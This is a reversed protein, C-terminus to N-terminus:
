ARIGRNLNVMRPAGDGQGGRAGSGGGVRGGHAADQYRTGGYGGRSGKQYGGGTGGVRGGYGFRGRGQSSAVFNEQWRGQPGGGGTEQNDGRRRPLGELTGGTRAEYARENSDVLVSLKDAMQFLLGQLRTQEVNHFVVCRTPQDWSAHLEEVMMMKSVVSHVRGEPLDFMSTLQDLSLSEYCTSYTLLYTRLAEEKIKTKLMDLVHDKNRLLKWTDLKAVTEFCKQYDGRTLARTAAMVHDRVNEPPGVFAQRESIELLRRFTKNSPRRRDYAPSAMGPVEILMACILHTAELLELNIHMHYPMQRRRELKEQEPTKEHYRSQSVGQALLEKVRGSQYLETLCGHAENILGARFACLGLQAMARNFLIQSAIDMLQIGDQLHSMLLLDRAVPYEDFIAHHYIDCLMARAKTREDGYKYILSVLTDMLDRSSEPFTCRRPVIEPVQIFDAPGRSKEQGEGELEGAEGTSEEALKRMADYVEQPKYYVLEVRRLAVKAASKFDGIRELYDQVNQAVVNFLPEDKLREVYDKTYPDTCQLSKFFESDLRELFAVLNGWVKIPGDYDIGKHTEKELMDVTDDVVINPYQHLIDLVLLMNAVCRKWMGVPMHGLLSPNVDFQASIVSFLIELKQAPTKAVRTLFTLQEVQEVRGTGKRGRAAVIEKLKKDVQDWTIESPDKMFQKDMQKDKKSQSKVWDGKEDDEDEEDKEQEEDSPYEIVDDGGDDSMDQEEESEDESEEDAVPNERYAKIMEEYQKNNKKLKQKMSNLAKANSTSMKKKGEKNALTEALFDELLVLAKIYTTPVKNSENVRSVKELQKNLKDFCDVLNVWDNIKTANRIQELTAQMEENRRERTSKVTRRQSDSDDSDSAAYKDVLYRSAGTAKGSPAAAEEESGEEDSQPVEEEEEESDSHAWFRSSM